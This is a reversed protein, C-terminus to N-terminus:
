PGERGTVPIAIGENTGFISLPGFFALLKVSIERESELAISNLIQVFMSCSCVEFLLLFLTAFYM